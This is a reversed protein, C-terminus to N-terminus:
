RSSDFRSAEIRLACRSTPRRPTSFSRTTGHALPMSVRRSMRMAAGTAWDFTGDQEYSSRTRVVEGLSESRGALRGGLIAEGYVRLLTPRRRLSPHTSGDDALLRPVTIGVGRRLTSLLPAIAGPALSLDPNLVLVPGGLTSAAVGANVGAAYGANSGLSVRRASPAIRAVADLTGDSSGSDVVILEHEDVGVLADPLSRVLEPMTAASNYTVVVISVVRAARDPAEPALSDDHLTM